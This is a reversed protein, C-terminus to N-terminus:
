ASTDSGKAAWWARFRRYQGSSKVRAWRYWKRFYRFESALLGFGVILFLTAPGPLPGATLAACLLLVGGAIAVVIKRTVRWSKRAAQRAKIM